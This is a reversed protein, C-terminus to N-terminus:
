TVSVSIVIYDMTDCLTLCLQVVKVESCKIYLIIYIGPTYYSHNVTKLAEVGNGTIIFCKSYEVYQVM